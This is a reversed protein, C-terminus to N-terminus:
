FYLCVTSSISTGDPFPSVANEKVVGLFYVGTKQSAEYDSMADGIFLCNQSRYNKRNLIDQCIEWKKRPSGHVEQFYKSLGKKGAILRIENEPTGSIIYAPISSKMLIELTKRAGPIFQSAIVEDVVLSSFQDSLENIIEENVHKNLITEYYYRFKDFRSVGGNSLHYEIVKNEVEHGYERFMKAFAKTKVDVSDLIVGDFDFFIADWNM